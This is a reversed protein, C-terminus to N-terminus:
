LMGKDVCVTWPPCVIDNVVVRLGDSFMITVAFDRRAALNWVVGKQMEEYWENTMSTSLASYDYADILIAAALIASGASVEGWAMSAPRVGLFEAAFEADLQTRFRAEHGMLRTAQVRRTEYNGSIHMTITM